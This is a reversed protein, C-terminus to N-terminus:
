AGFERGVAELRAGLDALPEYVGASLFLTGAEGVPVGTRTLVFARRALAEGAAQADDARQLAYDVLVAGQDELFVLDLCVELLAAGSAHLLRTGRWLQSAAQARAHIPLALSPLLLALAADIHSTAGLRAAVERACAGLIPASADLPVQRLVEHLLAELGRATGWEPETCRRVRPESGRRLLAVHAVSWAQRTERLVEVEAAPRPSPASRVPPRLEGAQVICWAAQMPTTAGAPVPAPLEGLPGDGLAGPVEQLAKLLGEARRGAFAGVALYDRARTAAVYLLRKEEARERERERTALPAWGPAQLAAGLDTAQLRMEATGEARDYVIAEHQPNGRAALNALVVCPFELGKAMHVTLLRVQEPNEEEPTWEALRPAEEDLDRLAYVFERLGAPRSNEFGRARRLLTDFNALARDGQPQAGYVARAATCELLRATVGGVGRGHREAHLVAFTELAAHLPSEPAPALYDFRGCRQRHQWLAADSAGFLPSRLAAALALEDGPDDIAALAHLVDRVEQRQFFLKGGEQRFPLGAARLADEYHEIGSTRAFLFAVDGPQLARAGSAQRVPWAEDLARQVFAVLALAEARRATDANEASGAAPPVIWVAPGGTTAAPLPVLPVHRPQPPHAAGAGFLSAFVGNVWHLIAPRSRFNQVVDLVEGGSRRVIACCQEYVDLDARRFRYISQKPDGVLFLQPGVQVDQWSLAAPGTEALYLVLEAQLPDTDQFEDVCLMRVRRGLDRRVALDDRLLARAELLLDQFDLVGLRRKEEAYAALFRRAWLLSRRLVRGALDQQLAELRAQLAQRLAKSTELGGPIWSERRGLGPKVSTGQLFFAPWAEHDLDELAEFRQALQELHLRGRDNRDRCHDQAHQWGDRVEQRLAQLRTELAETEPPLRVVEALDRNDYLARVVGELDPDLRVGTQLAAHLLEAGRPDELERDVWRRWFDRQLQLAELEDLVRFQPDLRAEAPRERLLSSAFAHITSIQARHLEGLARRLRAQVAAPAAPVRTELAQRLRLRLEGAAKETFSIAVIGAMDAVGSELAHLLRAVLLTTKGTGAGAEVVLPRDLSEVIRTRVAQDAPKWDEPLLTDTM